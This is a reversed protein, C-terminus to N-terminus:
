LGALAGLLVSETLLQRIIRWASAGLAGRIAMERERSAAKALM